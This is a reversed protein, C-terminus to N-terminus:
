QWHNAGRFTSDWIPQGGVTEACGIESQGCISKEVGVETMGAIRSEKRPKPADKSGFENIM